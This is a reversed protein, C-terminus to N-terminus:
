PSTSDDFLEAHSLSINVEGAPIIAAEGSSYAIVSAYTPPTKSDDLQSHVVIRQQPVDIVCYIAIAEAAYIRKKWGFDRPMSSDAIEVLFLTEGAHPHRKAFDRVKGRVVALDPEPESTSLTLPGDSRVHLGAPLQREIIRRLVEVLIHHQPGETMKQVLYGELLEIPSKDGLVGTSALGHYEDVTLRFVPEPPLGDPLHVSERPLYQFNM